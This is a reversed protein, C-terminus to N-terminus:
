RPSFLKELEVVAVLQGASEFLSRVYTQLKENIAQLNESFQNDAVHIHEPTSYLKLAAPIFEGNSECAVIVLKIPECSIEALGQWCYIDWVPIFHKRWCVLQNCGNTTHPIEHPQVGGLYELVQNDAVAIWQGPAIELKWAEITESM